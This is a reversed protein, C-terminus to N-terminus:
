PRLEDIAKSATWKNMFWEPELEKQAKVTLDLLYKYQKVSVGCFQTECNAVIREVAEEKNKFSSTMSNTLELSSHRFHTQRHHQLSFAGM